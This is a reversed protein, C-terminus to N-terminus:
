RESTVGENRIHSGPRWASYALATNAAEEMREHVIRSRAVELAMESLDEAHDEAGTSEDEDTGGWSEM